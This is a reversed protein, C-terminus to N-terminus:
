RISWRSSGAPGRLRRGEQEALHNAAASGPGTKMKDESRLKLMSLTDLLSSGEKNLSDVTARQKTIFLRSEESYAKRDGEM